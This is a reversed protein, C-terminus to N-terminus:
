LRAELIKFRPDSRLTDFAANSIKPDDDPNAKELWAIAAENQGLRSYILAIMTPAVYRQKSMEQLQGITESAEQRKGWRAYLEGLQALRVPKKDLSIAKQIEIVAQGYEEKEEYAAGLRMHAAAYNPDLELTKQLQAIAEDIRGSDLFYLGLEANTRVSLPDHELVRKKEAIAEDKSGIELLYYSHWDLAGMDGPNLELALNLEKEAAARDCRFQLKIMGLLAHTDSSSNDMELSKALLTEAKLWAERSPVMGMFAVTGYYEALGMYGEPYGPDLDISQQFYVKAKEFGEGTWKDLFYKGKLYAEYAQPNV